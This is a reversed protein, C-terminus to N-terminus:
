VDLQAEDKKLAECLKDFVDLDGEVCGDIGNAFNNSRQQLLRVIREEITGVGVLWWCNVPMDQKIRHCRDECQTHEGPTWGFEVFAVNSAATLNIGTGAAQINGIFLKCKPDNQFRDVARQRESEQVSGNVMVSITQWRQYLDEVVRRHWCFLVLKQESSLFNEVWEIVSTMKLSCALQKLTTVRIVAQARMAGALKGKHEESESLWELFDDQAKQYEKENSLPLPVISRTKSPLEKLVDKKLRRVMVGTTPHTLKENLEWMNTAGDFTWGFFNKRPACHRWAFIKWSSWVEPKLMHLIPFLQAPRSTFPTGTLIVVKEIAEALLGVTKTRKATRNALYHGEDVILYDFGTELFPTIWGKSRGRADILRDYNIITLRTNPQYPRGDWPENILTSDWGYHQSAERRWNFKLTAPCVVLIKELGREMAYLLSQISKGLGAEDALLARGNYRHIARAGVIQYRFPTTNM